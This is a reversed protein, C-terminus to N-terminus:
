NKGEEEANVKKAGVINGERLSELDNEKRERKEELLPFETSRISLHDFSSSVCVRLLPAINKIGNHITTRSLELKCIKVHLSRAM